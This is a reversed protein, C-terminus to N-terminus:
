QGQCQRENVKGSGKMSRGCTARWSDTPRAAPGAAAEHGPLWQRCQWVCQCAAHHTSNQLPTAWEVKHPTSHGAKCRRFMCRSETTSWLAICFGSDEIRTSCGEAIADGQSWGARVRRALDPHPRDVHELLEPVRLCSLLKTRLHDLGLGLREPLIVRVGQTAQHRHRAVDRSSAPKLFGVGENPATQPELPEM